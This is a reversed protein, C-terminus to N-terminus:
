ITRTSWQVKVTMRSGVRPRVSDADGVTEELSTYIIDVPEAEGVAYVEVANPPLERMTSVEVNSVPDNMAFFEAMAAKCRAEQAALLRYGEAPDPDDSRVWNEVYFYAVGEGGNFLEEETEKGRVLFIAGYRGDRGPALDLNEPDLAGLEVIQAVQAAVLHAKLAALIKYWVM